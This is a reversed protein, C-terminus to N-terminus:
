ERMWDSDGNGMREFIAEGKEDEAYVLGRADRVELLAFANDGCEVDLDDTSEGGARAFSLARNCDCGMNGDSYWFGTEATERWQLPLVYVREAGDAIRRIRMFPRDAPTTIDLTM